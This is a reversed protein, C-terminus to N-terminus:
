TNGSYKSLQLKCVESLVRSEVFEHLDSKYLHKNLFKIATHPNTLGVELANEQSQKHLITVQHDRRIKCKKPYNGVVLLHRCVFLHVPSYFIRIQSYALLFKTLHRWWAFSIRTFCILCTCDVFITNTPFSTFRIKTCWTTLKSFNTLIHHWISSVYSDRCCCIIWLSTKFDASAIFSFYFVTMWQWTNRWATAEHFGCTSKLM